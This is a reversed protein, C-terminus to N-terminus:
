GKQVGITLAFHHGPRTPYKRKQVPLPHPYYIACLTNSVAYIHKRKDAPAGKLIAHLVNWRVTEPSFGYDHWIIASNENCLLRFANETDSVVSDFHHDGDVFVLDQKGKYNSFDFSRSDGELLNINPSKKVFHGHLQIYDEPWNRARMEQVSLNLSYCREVVRAANMLSEGRWMGIEFYSKAQIQQALAQILALDTPLSGGDLFAFPEVTVPSKIFEGLSVEPLGKPLLYENEVIKRHHDEDDLLENILAPNKALMGLGRIFKSIKRQYQAM